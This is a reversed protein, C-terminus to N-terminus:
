IREIVLKGKEVKLVLEEKETFKSIDTVFKPLLIRNGRFDLNSIIQQAIEGSLGLDEYIKLTAEDRDRASFIESKEFLYKAVKDPINISTAKTIGKLGPSLNAEIVLPGKPSELMDVACVDAGISAATDIAIRKTRQDLVCAEGTGGAHINARMEGRVAKRKMSAVVRDGVVFARVDVGGTEIYEQILFPQKLAILADLMSSAAAYSEAFMVGKGQTGHPFKLVIPYKVENLVKKAARTSSALYTTPMPINFHQLALHTLLKDHGLTFTEPKIPMYSSRFLTRTVSRLLPAYRFSGRAYICSYQPLPKGEYLVALKGVGLNVEVDRLDINDVSDFYNKMADSVMLSSRSGLSMVAAKM